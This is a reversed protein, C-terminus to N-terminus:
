IGNKYVGAQWLLTFTNKYVSEKKSLINVTLAFKNRTVAQGFIIRKDGIGEDVVWKLDLSAANEASQINKTTMPLGFIISQFRSILKESESIGALTNGWWTFKNKVKGNDNKNGGFLSLYVATNFSMDSVFLDNEIKIDGGDPTDELLLDGEFIQINNM